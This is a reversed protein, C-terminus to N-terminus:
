TKALPRYEEPKRALVKVSVRREGYAAYSGGM